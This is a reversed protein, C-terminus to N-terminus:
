DESVVVGVACEIISGEDSRVQLSGRSNIGMATGAVPSEVRHGLLVDRQLWRTLEDQAGLIEPMIEDRLKVM